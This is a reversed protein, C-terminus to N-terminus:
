KLWFGNEDIVIEKLGNYHSSARMKVVRLFRKLELGEEKYILLLLNDAVYSIGHKTLMSIESSNHMEHTLYVSVGQRKFFDTLSWIYDTYKVKDQLGLEFSSISDIILRKADTNKVLKQVEYVHEDVDLEIPSIHKMYLLGEDIYKQLDIGLNSAGRIIQAPNEEFTVYVVKKNEKLGALAFNLALITKGTGSAGSVLTTTGMPIGGNMIEDLGVIGSSIRSSFQEYAQNSVEPNIRPFIEIGNSNITFVNEGGQHGTGRMKLIRLFRKQRRKEETGSLYIIGDAIASEPRIEIDEESYEGLLLSTSGWTSLRLSLDLVFERFETSTLIMDAITKITDVIVLSPQHEKLLETIVTLAQSPGKKRLISGLDHYIVSDQVKNIDFYKFQQQFKMVNVLPEALTTLYLVKKDLTANYFMTQHALTTKGTGPRGVILITAGQPFGGSLINDFSEIGTSVRDM